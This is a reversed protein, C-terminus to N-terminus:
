RGAAGAVVEARELGNLARATLPTPGTVWTRALGQAEEKERGTLPQWM